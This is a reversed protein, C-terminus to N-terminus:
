NIIIEDSFIWSPGGSGPHYEPCENINMAKVKIYRTKINKPNASYTFIDQVFSFDNKPYVEYILEFNEGDISHEIEIKKPLFIWFVQSQL